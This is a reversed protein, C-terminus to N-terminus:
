ATCATRANHMGAEHQQARQAQQICAGKMSKMSTSCHSSGRMEGCATGAAAWAKLGVKLGPEDCGMRPVGLERKLAGPFTDGFGLRPAPATVAPTLGLPAVSASPRDGGGEARERLERLSPSVLMDGQSTERTGPLLGGLTGAWVEGGVGRGAGTVASLAATLAPTSAAAFCCVTCAGRAMPCSTTPVRGSARPVLDWTLLLQALATQGYCQSM